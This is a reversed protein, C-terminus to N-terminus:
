WPLPAGPLSFGGASDFDGGLNIGGVYNVPAPNYQPVVTFTPPPPTPIAGTINCPDFGLPYNVAYDHFPPRRPPLIREANAPNDVLAANGPDRMWQYTLWWTTSDEQSVECGLFKFHNNNSPDMLHFKGQANEIAIRNAPTFTTLKVRKTVKQAWLELKRAERVWEYCGLLTSSNSPNPRRVLVPIDIQMRLPSISRQSFSPDHENTTTPFSWRGDNSYLCRVICKVQTLNEEVERRDLNLKPSAFITPHQSGLAPLGPENLPNWTMPNTGDTMTVLYRLVDVGTKADFSPLRSGDLLPGEVPM